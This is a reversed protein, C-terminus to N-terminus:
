YSNLATLDSTLQAATTPHASLDLTITQTPGSTIIDTFDSYYNGNVVSYAFVRATIGEPISNMYSEVQNNSSHTYIHCITSQGQPVFLVYTNGGGYGQYGSLIGPNNPLDVYFMSLTNNTSYLSSIVDCNVWGTTPWDFTLTDNVPKIDQPQGPVRAPQWDFQEQKVGDPNQIVVPEGVFLNTFPVRDDNPVAFQVPKALKEDVPTNNQGVSVRFDFSGQTELLKGGTTTNIGSLAVDGRDGLELVAIEVPGTVVRDRLTFANAPIKISTGGELKITGGEKGSITFSQYKPGYKKFFDQADEGEQGEGPDADSGFGRSGEMQEALAKEPALVEKSKKCASFLMLSLAAIVAFSLVIKKM